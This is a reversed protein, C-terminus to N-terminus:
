TTRPLIRPKTLNKKAAPVKALFGRNLTGEIRIEADDSVSSSLLGIYGDDKFPVRYDIGTLRFQANAKSINQKDNYYSVLVKLSKMGNHAGSKLLLVSLTDSDATYGTVGSVM